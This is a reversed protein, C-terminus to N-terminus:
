STMNPETWHLNSNEGWEFLLIRLIRFKQKQKSKKREKEMKLIKEVVMLRLYFWDFKLCEWPPLIKKGFTWLHALLLTAQIDEYWLSCPRPERKWSIWLGPSTQKRQYLIWVIERPESTASYIHYHDRNHIPDECTSISSYTGKCSSDEWWSSHGIFCSRNILRRM